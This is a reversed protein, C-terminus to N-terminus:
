GNAEAEAEAAEKAAKEAAKKAKLLKDLEAVSLDALNLSSDAILVPAPAPPVAVVVQAPTPAFMNTISGIAAAALQIGLSATIDGVVAYNYNKYVKDGIKQDERSTIFLSYTNGAKIGVSEAISGDLISSHEPLVAGNISNLILPWVGRKNPKFKSGEFQTISSVSVQYIM